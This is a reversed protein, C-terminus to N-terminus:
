GRPVMSTKGLRGPGSTLVVPGHVWALTVRSLQEVDRARPCQGSDGPAVPRHRPGLSVPGLQVPCSTLEAPRSVGVQTARPLQDVGRTKPVLDSNCPVAPIGQPGQSIPGLLGPCSTLVVPRLYSRTDGPLAPRCRPGQSMPRRRGPTSISGAPVRVRVWPARSHQDVRLDESRLALKGPLQVVGCSWPGPGSDGLVASRCRPGESM